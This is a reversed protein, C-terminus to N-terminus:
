IAIVPADSITTSNNKKDKEKELRKKNAETEQKVKAIRQQNRIRTQKLDNLATVLKKKAKKSGKFNAIEYEM